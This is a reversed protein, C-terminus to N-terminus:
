RRQQCTASIVMQGREDLEDLAIDEPVAGSEVDQEYHAQRKLARQEWARIRRQRRLEGTQKQRERERIQGQRRLQKHVSKKLEILDAAPIMINDDDNNEEYNHEEPEDQKGVIDVIVHAIGCTGRRLGLQYLYGALRVRAHLNERDSDAMATQLVTDNLLRSHLFPRIRDAISLTRRLLLEKRLPWGLGWHVAYMAVYLCVIVFQLKSFKVNITATGTRDLICLGSVFGPLLPALLTVFSAAALRYHGNKCAELPVLFSLKTAYETALSQSSTLPGEALDSWSQTDCLRMSHMSAINSYVGSLYVPLARFILTAHYSDSLEIEETNDISVWGATTNGSQALWPDTVLAGSGLFGSVVATILAAVMALLLVMFIAM